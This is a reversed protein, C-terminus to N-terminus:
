EYSGELTWHNRWGNIFLCESICRDLRIDVCAFIAEPIPLGAKAAMDACVGDNWDLAANFCGEGCPIMPEVQGMFYEYAEQLDDLKQDVDDPNTDEIGPHCFLWFEFCDNLYELYAESLDDSTPGSWHAVEGDWSWDGAATWIWWKNTGDEDFWGNEYNARVKAYGTFIIGAILILYLLTTKM